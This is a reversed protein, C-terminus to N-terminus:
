LLFACYPEDDHTEPNCLCSINLRVIAYSCYCGGSNSSRAMWSIAKYDARDESKSKSMSKPNAECLADLAVENNLICINGSLPIHNDSIDRM